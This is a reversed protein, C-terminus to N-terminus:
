RTNSECILRAHTPPRRSCCSSTSGARSSAADGTSRRSVKQRSRSRSWPDAASRTRRLRPAAASPSQAGVGSNEDFSLSLPYQIGTREDCCVEIRGDWDGGEHDGVFVVPLRKNQVRQLADILDQVTMGQLRASYTCRAISISM